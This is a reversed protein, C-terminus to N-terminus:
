GIKISYSIDDTNIPGKSKKFVISRKIISELERVNGEWKFSKLKNKADDSLKLNVGYIKSYKKIFHEAILPIDDERESLPPINVPIENLRFYLDKKFNEKEIEKKLNKNTSAIIRVDIDEAKNSGIRTIKGEEVVRLIKNQLKLNMNGIEDLLITGGHAYQFKGFSDQNASTFAGKKYGFLGSELLESPISACNVAVFNNDRRKGNYHLARACLEKGTGTEGTLLVTPPLDALRNLDEFLNIMIETKGIIIGNNYSMNPVKGKCIIYAPDLYNEFREKKM